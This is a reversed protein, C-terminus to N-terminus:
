WDGAEGDEGQAEGCDDGTEFVGAGADSSTASEVGGECSGGGGGGGGGYATEWVAIAWASVLAM